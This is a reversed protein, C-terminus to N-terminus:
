PILSGNEVVVRGSMVVNDVKDTDQFVTIDDLPNASLSLYDAYKGEEITRYLITEHECLM